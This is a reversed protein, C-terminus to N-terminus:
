HRWQDDDGASGAIWALVAILLICGVIASVIGTM